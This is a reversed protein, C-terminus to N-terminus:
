LHTKVKELFARAKEQSIANYLPYKEGIPEALVTELVRAADQWLSKEMLYFEVLFLRNEFYENVAPDIPCKPCQTCTTCLGPESVVCCFYTLADDLRQRYTGFPLSPLGGWFAGLSRYPGYCVYSPDLELLRKAMAETKPPVGAFIAGMKDFEAARLWNSNAWYLAPVDTEAQVAEVFSKTKELEAFTPNMRLSKLGWHKGKLYTAEENEEGGMFADALTYYCQSLKNVLDKKTPDVAFAGVADESKENLDAPIGLATRFVEIAAELKAKGEESYPIMVDDERFIGLAGELSMQGLAPFVLAVTMLTFAISLGRKRM